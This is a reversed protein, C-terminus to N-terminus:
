RLGLGGVRTGVQLAANDLDNLGRAHHTDRREISRLTM